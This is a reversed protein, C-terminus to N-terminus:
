QKGAEALAALKHAIKFLTQVHFDSASGTGSRVEALRSIEKAALTLDEPDMGVPLLRGRQRLLSLVADVANVIKRSTPVGSGLEASIAEYLPDRDPDVPITM